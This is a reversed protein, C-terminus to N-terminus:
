DKKSNAIHQKLITEIYNSLSRNDKEALEKIKKIISEDLRMSLIQKEIGM